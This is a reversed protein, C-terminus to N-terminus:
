LSRLRTLAESTLGVRLADIGERVAQEQRPTFLIAEGRLPAIPVLRQIIQRCLNDIGFGTLASVAISDGDVAIPAAPLLDVKNKVVLVGVGLRPRPVRMGASTTADQVSLVLDAAALGVEARTVGAVELPDDSERLGASDVLEVPWGEIATTATLLDRTTGPQDFVISRQYGVLANMLSSKGVNPPGAIFVRWPRTLHLGVPALVLLRELSKLPGSLDDPCDELSAMVEALCNRLAGHFQDLLLVASKETRAAALAFLAEAAIQEPESREAVQEWPVMAAGDSALTKMIAASAIAGGHCHIEARNEGHLGVVVEEAADALSRFSGFIVRGIPLEALRKGSAPSFHRSVLEIAGHGAVLISAVAGRGPPTLLSIILGAQNM